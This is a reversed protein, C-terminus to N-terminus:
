TIRANDRTKAKRSSVAMKKKIKSRIIAHIDHGISRPETFDPYETQLLDVEGPSVLSVKQEGIAGFKSSTHPWEMKLEPSGLGNIKMWQREIDTETSDSTKLENTGVDMDTYFALNVDLKLPLYSM